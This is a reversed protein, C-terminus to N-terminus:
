RERAWAIAEAAQRQDADTQYWIAAARDRALQLSPGGTTLDLGAPRDWRPRSDGDRRDGTEALIRDLLAQQEHPRVARLDAEVDDLSDIFQEGAPDPRPADPPHSADAHQTAEM